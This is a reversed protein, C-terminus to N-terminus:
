EEEACAGAAPWTKLITRALLMAAVGLAAGAVIIANVDVAPRWRVQDNRIVFAGVPRAHVGFGGGFGEGANNPGSGEGGVGGTVRAAPIVVVGDQAVTEGYVVHATLEGRAREIVDQISM